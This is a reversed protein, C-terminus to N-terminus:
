RAANPGNQHRQDHIRAEQPRRAHMRIRPGGPTCEAKRADVGDLFVGFHGSRAANSGNQKMKGSGAGM